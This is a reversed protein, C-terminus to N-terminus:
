NGKTRNHRHQKLWWEYWNKRRARWQAGKMTVAHDSMSERLNDRWRALSKVDYAHPFDDNLHYEHALYSHIVCRNLYWALYHREYISLSDIFAQIDTPELAHLDRCIVDRKSSMM